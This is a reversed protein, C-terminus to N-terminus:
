NGFLSRSRRKLKRAVLGQYIFFATLFILVAGVVVGFAIGPVEGGGLTPRAPPPPPEENEGEEEGEPTSRAVRLRTQSDVCESSYPRHDVSVLDTANTPNAPWITFRQNENDVHLYSSSLFPHGLIPLKSTDSDSLLIIEKDDIDKKPVILQHNPITISPGNSLKFTM